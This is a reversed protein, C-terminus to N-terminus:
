YNDKRFFVFLIIGSTLFKERIVECFTEDESLFNLAFYEQVSQQHLILNIRQFTRM